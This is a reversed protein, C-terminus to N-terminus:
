SKPPPDVNRLMVGECFLGHDINQKKFYTTLIRQLESTIDQEVENRKQSMIESAKYKSASNRIATRIGPRLVKETYTSTSGLIRYIEPADASVLKYLVTIDLTVSLNDKSLAEIADSRDDKEGEDVIGSMTYSQTQITMKEVRVFPNKGHLGEEVIEPKVEGFLVKVGVHGPPIVVLASFVFFLVALFLCIGGGWNGAERPDPHNGRTSLFWILGVILFVFCLWIM